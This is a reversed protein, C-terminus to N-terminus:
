YNCAHRKCVILLTTQHTVKTRPSILVMQTNVSAFVNFSKATAKIRMMLMLMIVLANVNFNLPTLAITMILIIQMSRLDADDPEAFRLLVM